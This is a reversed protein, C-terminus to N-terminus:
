RGVSEVVPEVVSKVAISPKQARKYYAFTDSYPVPQYQQRNAMDAEAYGLFLLGNPRLLSDLKSFTRDRAKQDLYILLNRCFIVDYPLQDSLLQSDLVNGQRFDVKKRVSDVLFYRCAARKTQGNRRPMGLSFYKDDSRYGQRRFAYPSYVGQKAKILALLSIDVGDIHFDDMSLGELLTIAISYPEEGTSCPLSLVRLIRATDAKKILSWEIAVWQRLFFFSARNHFFSTESVVVSEVLADFQVPSNQLDSLYDLLTQTGSSRMGKKIARSLTGSGVSQPDLGIRRRLLAEIECRITEDHDM